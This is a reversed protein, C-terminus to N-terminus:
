VLRRRRVERSQRPADPAPDRLFRPPGMRALLELAPALAHIEVGAPFPEGSRGIFIPVYETGSPAARVKEGPRPGRPVPRDRASKSVDPPEDTGLEEPDQPVLPYDAPVKRRVRQKSALIVAPDAYRVKSCFFRTPCSRFVPASFVDPLRHHGIPSRCHCECQHYADANRHCSGLGPRLASGRRRHRGARGTHVLLVPTEWVARHQHFFYKLRSGSRHGCPGDGMGLM